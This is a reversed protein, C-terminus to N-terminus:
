QLGTAGNRINATFKQRAPLNPQVCTLMHKTMKARTLYLNFYLAFAFMWIPFSMKTLWYAFRFDFYLQTFLFWMINWAISVYSRIYIRANLGVFFIACM